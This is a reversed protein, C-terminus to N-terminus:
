NEKIIELVMLCTNSMFNHMIRRQSKGEFYKSNLNINLAKSLANVLTDQHLADTIGTRNSSFNSINIIELCYEVMNSSFGKPTERPATHPGVSSNPSALLCLNQFM